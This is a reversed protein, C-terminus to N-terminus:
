LRALEHLLHLQCGKFFRKKHFPLNESMFISEPFLQNMLQEVVFKIGDLVDGVKLAIKFLETVSRYTQMCMNM